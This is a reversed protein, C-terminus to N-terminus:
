IVHELHRSHSALYLWSYAERLVGTSEGETPKLYLVKSNQEKAETIFCCGGLLCLSAHCKVWLGFGPRQRPTCVCLACSMFFGTLHSSLVAEYPWVEESERCKGAKDRPCGGPFFLLVCAQLSFLSPMANGTLLGAFARLRANLVTYCILFLVWTTQSTTKWPRLQTSSHFIDGPNAAPWLYWSTIIHYLSVSTSMRLFPNM